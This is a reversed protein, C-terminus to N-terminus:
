KELKNNEEMNNLAYEICQTILENRSIDYKAAEQDIKELTDINIRISIVLKESNLKKPKFIKM